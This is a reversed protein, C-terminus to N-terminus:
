YIGRIKFTTTSSMLLNALFDYVEAFFFHDPKATKPFYAELEGTKSNQKYSRVPVQLHELYDKQATKIDIPIKRINRKFSEVIMTMVETRNVSLKYYDDNGHYYLKDYSNFDALYVRGPHLSRFEKAKTREPNIDIVCKLVNYGTILSSLEGWTTTGIKIPYSIGKDNYSIRYHLKEGVDVGMTTPQNFSNRMTSNTFCANLDEVTLKNGSPEFPEGLDSKYFEEIKSPDQGISLFFYANFRVDMMKTIHYGSALYKSIRRAVWRGSLRTKNSVENHCNRCLIKADPTAMDYFQLINNEYSLVQETSCFPCKVMWEKQDSEHVYKHNIGYGPVTPTSFLYKYPQAANDLRKELTYINSLDMEDMEDVFLCSVDKSIMQRRERAGTFYAINSSPKGDSGITRYKLQETNFVDGVKKYFFTNDELSPRIRGTVFLRMQEQSPFVYLVNLQRTDLFYVMRAVMLESIGCQSSKQVIIYPHKDKALDILYPRNKFSYKESKSEGSSIKWYELLWYFFSSKAFDDVSINLKSNTQTQTAVAM